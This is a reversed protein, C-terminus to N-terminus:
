GGRSRLPKDDLSQTMNADAEFSDNEIRDTFRLMMDSPVDKGPNAHTWDRLEQCAKQIDRHRDKELDVINLVKEAANGTVNAIYSLRDRADPIQGALQQVSSLLGM